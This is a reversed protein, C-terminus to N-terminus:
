KGFLESYIEAMEEESIKYPSNAYNSADKVKEVYRKITEDDLNLDVAALKPIVEAIEGASAGIAHAFESLLREGEPTRSNYKIYAGTFAACAKGHPTGRDLTLNYGLPHPFGTGTTNIAVGGATAAYALAERQAYTFGGADPEGEALEGEVLVRWIHGAGFAAFMRSIDTSKPSLYSEICHCFADLATSVTYERGLSRTYKPDVFAYKFYSHPSNFTKKKGAGDLTLVSYPNVESGTGATTPIGILPLSPKLTSVNYLELPQIGDNAAFAAVAKAADLPSGGGIGVVFEAGFEAALRGGETCTSILPNEGIKDFLVHECGVSDLTSLVDDLAGSAKASRKGTVIICKKGLAFLGANRVVSNEGTILRAPMYFDLKVPKV